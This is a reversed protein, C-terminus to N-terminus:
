WWCPLLCTSVQQLLIVCGKAFMDNAIVFLQFISFFLVPFYQLYTIYEAIKVARLRLQPFTINECAHTPFKTWQGHPPPPTCGRSLCGGGPCVVGVGDPLCGGRSLCGEGEQYVSGLLRSSCRVTCMRSSHM